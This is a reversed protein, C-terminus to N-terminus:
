KDFTLAENRSRKQRGKESRGKLGDM